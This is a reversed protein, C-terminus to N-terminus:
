VRVWNLKNGHQGSIMGFIIFYTLLGRRSAILEEPTAPFDRQPLLLYIGSVLLRSSNMPWHDFIRYIYM